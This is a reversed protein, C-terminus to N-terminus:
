CTHSSAPSYVGSDDENTESGPEPVGTGQEGQLPLLHLLHPLHLPHLPLPRLALAGRRDAPSGAGVMPAQDAQGAITVTITVQLHGDSDSTISMTAKRHSKKLGLFTNLLGHAKGAEAM